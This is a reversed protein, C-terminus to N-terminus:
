VDISVFADSSLSSFFHCLKCRNFRVAFSKIIGLMCVIGVSLMFIVCHFLDSVVSTNRVLGAKEIDIKHKAVFKIYEVLALVAKNKREFVLVAKAYATYLNVDLSCAMLLYLITSNSLCLLGFLLMCKKATKVLINTKMLYTHLNALKRSTFEPGDEWHIYCISQYLNHVFHHANGSVATKEVVLFKERIKVLLFFFSSTTDSALINTKINGPVGLHGKVKLFDSVTFFTKFMCVNITLQSDLYLVVSCLLLVCELALAMAHLKTLISFLLGAVRVEINMNVALFYVVAKSAIKISGASKLSGDTYVKICNSWEELLNDCVVSFKESNLVDLVDKKFVAATRIELLTFNSIFNSM